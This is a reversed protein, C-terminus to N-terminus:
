TSREEVDIQPAHRLCCVDPTRQKSWHSRPFTVFRRGASRLARRSRTYKGKCHPSRGHASPSMPMMKRSASSTWTKPTAARLQRGLLSETSTSAFLDEACVSVVDFPRDFPCSPRRIQLWHLALRQAASVKAGDCREIGRDKGLVRQRSWMRLKKPRPHQVPTDDLVGRRVLIM